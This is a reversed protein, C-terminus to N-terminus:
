LNNVFKNYLNYTIIESNIDNDSESLEKKLKLITNNASPKIYLRQAGFSDKIYNAGIYMKFHNVLFRFNEDEIDLKQDRAALTMFSYMIPLFSSPDNNINKEIQNYIERYSRVISINRILYIAKYFVFAPYRSLAMFYKEIKDNSEKSFIKKNLQIFIEQTYDTKTYPLIFALFVLDQASSKSSNIFSKIDNNDIINLIKKIKLNYVVFNIKSNRDNLEDAFDKITDKIFQGINIKGNKADLILKWQSQALLKNAKLFEFFDFHNVAFKIVQKRDQFRSYLYEKFIKGFENCDDSYTNNYPYVNTLWHQKFFVLLNKIKIKDNKINEYLNNMTNLYDQYRDKLVSNITFSYFHTVSQDEKYDLITEVFDIEQESSNIEDVLFNVLEVVRKDEGYLENTNMKVIKM